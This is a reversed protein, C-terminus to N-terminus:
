GVLLKKLPVLHEPEKGGAVNVFIKGIWVPDKEFIQIKLNPYKELIQDMRDVDLKEIKNLKVRRAMPPIFKLGEDFADMLLIDGLPVQDDNGYDIFHMRVKGVDTYELFRARYFKDDDSFKVAFVQDEVRLREKILEPSSYNPDVVRVGSLERRIIADFDNIIRMLKNKRSPCQYYIEGEPTYHSVTIPISKGPEPVPVGCVFELQKLMILGVDERASTTLELTFSGETKFSRMVRAKFIAFEPFDAADFARAAIDTGTFLQLKDIEVELAKFPVDLGATPMKYIHKAELTYDRIEDLDRLDVVAGKVDDYGVKLVIGRIIKDGKIGLVIFGVPLDEIVEIPSLKGEKYENRLYRMVFGFLAWTTEEILVVQALHGNGSFARLQVYFPEVPLNPKRVLPQDTTVLATSKSQSPSSKEDSVRLFSLRSEMDTLFNDTSGGSGTLSSM